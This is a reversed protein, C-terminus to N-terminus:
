ELFEVEGDRILAPELSFNFERGDKVVKGGSLGTFEEIEDLGQKAGEKTLEKGELSKALLQMTDYCYTAYHDFEAVESLPNKQYREKLDRARRNSENKYITPAPAYVGVNMKALEKRMTTNTASSSAFIPIKLDMEKAQKVSTLMHHNFGVILLAEPSQAKIKTLQIKFDNDALNFAEAYIEGNLQKKFEEAMAQGFDNNVYLTATKKINKDNIIKILPPIENKVLHSYRFTFNNINAVNPDTAMTVLLPTESMKATPSITKSLSSGITLVTIPKDLNILKNFATLGENNNSKSDEMILKIEKGNIGGTNNIEEVTTELSIQCQLGSTSAIPGTLPLVAGITVEEEPKEQATDKNDGEQNSGCGALTFIFLATLLVPIIKKHNTM